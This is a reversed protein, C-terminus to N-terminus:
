LIDLLTLFDELSDEGDEIETKANEDSFAALAGIAGIAMGAAGQRGGAANQYAQANTNNTGVQNQVGLQERAVQAAYQAQVQQQLQAMYNNYQQANLQAQNQQAQLNSLNTQQNMQGQQLAFQNLDAQNALGAQQYLQAQALQQANLAGTNFQSNQQSLQAQAQNAANINQASQLGAQQQLQAQAQAFNSAQQNMGSLTNGLQGQAALAEQTRGLVAQQAAQQGANAQADMLARQALAPNSSGRQSGLVAAAQQMNQNRQQDATVQALSPGQGQSQATLQNALAQQQNFTNNYQGANLQAGGYTATPGLNAQGALATSGIKAGDFTNAAGLQTNNAQAAAGTTSGLYGAMGNNYNTAQNGTPNQFNFDNIAYQPARYQGTGLAGPSDSDGFIGDAIGGM